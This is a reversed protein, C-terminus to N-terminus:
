EPEPESEVWFGQYEPDAYRGWISKIVGIYENLTKVGISESPDIIKAVEAAAVEPDKEGRIMQLVIQVQPDGLRTQEPKYAKGRALRKLGAAKRGGISAMMAWIAIEARSIALELKTAKGDVREPPDEPDGSEGGAYEVQSGAYLHAATILDFIDAEIQNVERSQALDYPRRIRMVKSKKTRAKSVM